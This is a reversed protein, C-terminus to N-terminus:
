NRVANPVGVYRMEPLGVTAAADAPDYGAEVLAKAAQAQSTRRRDLDEHNVPTPDDYNFVLGTSTAYRTLLKQNLMDKWRDLRPITQNEALLEKGAQANARNVDDVTGLAPKPFAFAERILERPFNRLEVFQMDSMSFKSDQWDANELVAVRHANAVGQHQARWRMVFKRFEEDTMRYKLKIVGGPVAGNKFFNLNWRAAYQAAQVDSLVTQTASISGYNPNSPRPMRMCIVEDRELPIEEGDSSTYIYGSIFETPHPVPTIHDPRIPWLRVPYGKVSEVLTWCRGVLDMYTQQIERFERASFFPNPNNWLALAPHEDIEQAKQQERLSSSVYLGWRVKAVLQSNTSVIAYLTSVGEYASYAQEDDNGDEINSASSAGLPIPAGSFSEQMPDRANRFTKTIKGIVTQM